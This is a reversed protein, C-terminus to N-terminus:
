ENMARKERKEIHRQRAPTDEKRETNKRCKLRKEKERKYKCVVVIVPFFVFFLFSLRTM